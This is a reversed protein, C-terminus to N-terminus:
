KTSPLPIETTLMQTLRRYVKKNYLILKHNAAQLIEGSLLKDITFNSDGVNFLETEINWQSLSASESSVVEDYCGLISGTQISPNLGGNIMSPLMATYLTSETLLDRMGQDDYYKLGISAFPSGRQPVSVFILKRVNGKSSYGSSCTYYRAALGGMSHAILDFRNVQIGNSAMDTKIKDLYDSLQAASSIVGKGSDYSFGLPNFGQTKLYASVGSFIQPSAQYGHVLVVPVPILDIPISATKDTGPLRAKLLVKDVGNTTSPPTYEALFGGGADTIGTAPSFEGVPNSNPASSATGADESDNKGTAGTISGAPETKTIGPAISDAAAELLVEAGHVPAGEANRVQVRVIFTNETDATITRIGPAASNMTINLGAKDMASYVSSESPVASDTSWATFLLFLPYLSVAAFIFAAIVAKKVPQTGTNM